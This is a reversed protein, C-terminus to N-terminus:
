CGFTQDRDATIQGQRNFFVFWPRPKDRFMRHLKPKLIVLGGVWEDPLCSGNHATALIAVNRHNKIAICHRKCMDKDTTVLLWSNQHCLEIIPPDEIGQERKAADDERPFSDVFEHVIYDARRLEAAVESNSFGDDLFLALPNRYKKYIGKSL